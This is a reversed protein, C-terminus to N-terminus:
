RPVLCCLGCAACAGYWPLWALAVVWQVTKHVPQIPGQGKHHRRIVKPCLSQRRTPTRGKEQCQVNAKHQPGAPRSAMALQGKKNHLPCAGTGPARASRRHDSASENGVLEQCNAMCRWPTSRWGCDTSWAVVVPASGVATRRSGSPGKQKAGSILHGRKKKPGWSAYGVGSGMRAGHSKTTTGRSLRCGRM